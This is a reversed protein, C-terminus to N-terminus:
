PLRLTQHYAAPLTLIHRYSQEIGLCEMPSGDMIGANVGRAGGWSIPLGIATGHFIQTHNPCRGAGSKLDLLHSMRGFRYLCTGRRQSSQPVRGGIESLRIRNPCARSFARVRCSSNLVLLKTPNTREDQKLM